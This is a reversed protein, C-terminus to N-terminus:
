SDDAEGGSEFSELTGEEAWDPIQIEISPVTMLLPEESYTLLFDTPSEWELVNVTLQEGSGPSNQHLHTVVPIAVVILALLVAAVKLWPPRLGNLWYSRNRADLTRSFSPMSLEDEERLCHYLERLPSDNEANM